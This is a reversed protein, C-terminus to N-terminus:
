TEKEKTEALELLALFLGSMIDVAENPRIFYRASDYTSKIEIEITDKPNRAPSEKLWRYVRIYTGDKGTRNWYRKRKM